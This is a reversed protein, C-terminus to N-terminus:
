GCIQEVFAVIIDVIKSWESSQLVRQPVGSVLQLFFDLNGEGVLGTTIGNGISANQFRQALGVSGFFPNKDLFSTRGDGLIIIKNVAGPHVAMQSTCWQIAPGILTITARQSRDVSVDLLLKETAPQLTSIPQVIAGYENVAFRSERLGGLTAIALVVFAKQFEYDLASISISGDMAFCVNPRCTPFKARLLAIAELFREKSEPTSLLPNNGVIQSLEKIRNEDIFARCSSFAALFLTLALLLRSALM